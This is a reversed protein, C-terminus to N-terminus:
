NTWYQVYVRGARQGSCEFGRAPGARPDRCDILHTFATVARGALSRSVSGTLPGDSCAPSRCSRFDVPMATMGREYVVKPANDRVAAALDGYPAALQPDSRCGYTLRVACVIREAVQHALAVGPARLGAFWGLTAM